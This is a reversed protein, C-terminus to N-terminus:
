KRILTFMRKNFRLSTKNLFPVALILFLLIGIMLAVMLFVSRNTLLQSQVDISRTISSYALTSAQETTYGKGKFLQTYSELRSNHDFDLGNVKNLLHTKYQKNFMLQLSYFGAISNLTGTFRTFAAIVIGTTGTHKPASSLTFIVIPVFLLGSSAGQLFVPLLLNGLAIDPSFTFYMWIHYILMITFGSILFGKTSHRNRIILQASLIMFSLLGAVNCLGLIMVQQPSWQLISGTYSYVINISDKFGYYIILLILGIVFNRSKFISLDILPRKISLQRYIFLTACSAVLGSSWCIRYDSFWYYRAGYVMTYTMAAAMLSFLFAGIWDLRYLPYSRFGSKKRMTLLVVLLSIIQFIISYLYVNTWDSTTVVFAAAIGIIVGNSFISGYFVTSGIAQMNETKIRSYILGVMGGAVNCVIIGQLFRIIFFPIPSRLVMCIISLLIGIMINLLLYSRTEFYRMFRFQIPMAVLIGVYSIQMAFSLDEAQLGTLSILSSQTMAFIGFQVLSSMLILFLAIRIGWNWKLIWSKFYQPHRM